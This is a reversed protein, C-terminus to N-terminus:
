NEEYEIEFVQVRGEENSGTGVNAPSIYVGRSGHVKEMLYRDRLLRRLGTPIHGGRWDWFDNGWDHDHLTVREINGLPWVLTVVPKPDTGAPIVISAVLTYVTM